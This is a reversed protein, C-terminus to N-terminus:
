PSSKLKKGYEKIIIGVSSLNTLRKPSEPTYCRGRKKKGGRRTLKNGKLLEWKKKQM